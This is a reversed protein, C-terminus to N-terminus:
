NFIDFLCNFTCNQFEFFDQSSIYIHIDEAYLNYQFYLARTYIDKILNKMMKGGYIIYMPYQIRLKRILEYLNDKGFYQSVFKRSINEKQM